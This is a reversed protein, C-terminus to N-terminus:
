VVILHYGTLGKYALGNFFWKAFYGPYWELGLPDRRDLLTKIVKDNTVDQSFGIACSEKDWIQVIFIKNM